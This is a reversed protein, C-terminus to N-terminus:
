GVSFEPRSARRSQVAHQVHYECVDSVRKDVWSGCVKGDRKKVTCMGLDRATGIVEISAASEPTVALINNVPHPDDASRQQDM